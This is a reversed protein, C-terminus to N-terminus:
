AQAACQVRIAVSAPSARRRASRVQTTEDRKEGDESGGEQIPKFSTAIWAQEVLVNGEVKRVIIKGEDISVIECFL